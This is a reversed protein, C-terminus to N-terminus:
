KALKKWLITQKMQYKMKSIIEIQKEISLDGRNHKFKWTGITNYPVKLKEALVQNSEKFIEDLAEKNTM